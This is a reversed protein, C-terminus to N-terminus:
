DYKYFGLNKLLKELKPEIWITLIAFLIGAMVDVVYHYRLYVTSFILSMGIVLVIWKFRSQFKFAILISVFTMMTHGSPMCDRNIIAAPNVTDPFVGGGANVMDRFANTLFLGPLETNLSAFDHVTFRPGIAPMFFYLLYSVFFGFIIIRAFDFFRDDKERLTFEVGLVFPIVYFMMYSFQLYETVVPIAFQGVWETPNVGFLAYDWGILVKDYDDPNVLPIYLHINSYIFFVVPIIYLRRVLTFLKGGKYRSSIMAFGIVALSVLVYSSFNLLPTELQGWFILCLISYIILMGLTYADSITLIIIINKVKNM